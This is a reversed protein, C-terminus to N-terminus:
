HTLEAVTRSGRLLKLRGNVIEFRDIDALAAGFAQEQQNLAQDACARRTSALAGFRLEGGDRTFLGSMSNCGGFGVVRNSDAVFRLWPRGAIDVPVAPTGNLEVLKWDSASLATGSTTGQMANCAALVCAAIGIRLAAAGRPRKSRNM